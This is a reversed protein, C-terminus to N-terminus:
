AETALEHATGYYAEAKAFDGGLRYHHEKASLKVAHRYERQESTELVARVLYETLTARKSKAFRGLAIIVSM